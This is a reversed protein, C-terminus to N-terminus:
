IHGLSQSHVIDLVNDGLADIIHGQEEFLQLTVGNYIPAVRLVDGVSQLPLDLCRARVRELRERVEEESGEARLTYDVFIGM